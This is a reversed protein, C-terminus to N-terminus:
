LEDLQEFEFNTYDGFLEEVLEDIGDMRWEDYTCLIPFGQIVAEPNIVNQATLKVFRVVKPNFEETFSVSQWTLGSGFVEAKNIAIYEPNHGDGVLRRLATKAGLIQNIKHHTEELEFTVTVANGQRILSSQKTTCVKERNEHQAYRQRITATKAELYQQKSFLNSPLIYNFFEDRSILGLRVASLVLAKDGEPNSELWKVVGMFIAVEDNHVYFSDLELLRTLSPASLKLYAVGKLIDMAKGTLEKQCTNQSSELGFLVCHDFLTLINELEPKAIISMKEALSVTFLELQYKHSLTLMKIMLEFSLGELQVYGTYIYCLIAKFADVSPIDILAIERQDKERFQGSFMAEFYESGSALINRHAPIKEGCVLFTVDSFTEKMLLNSSLNISLRDRHNVAEMARWGRELKQTVLFNRM